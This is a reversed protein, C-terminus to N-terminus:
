RFNYLDIDNEKAYELVLNELINIVAPNGKVKIYQCKLNHEEAKINKLESEDLNQHAVYEKWLRWTGVDSTMNFHALKDNFDKQKLKYGTMFDGAQGV